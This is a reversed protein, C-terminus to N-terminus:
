PRPGPVAASRGACGRVTVPGCCARSSPTCGSAAVLVFSVVLSTAQAAAIAGRSILGSTYTITAVGAIAQSPNAGHGAAAFCLPVVVAIGLGMLAFGTMAVAPHGALVILLSGLAALVGGRLPGHAPASVTWWRTARSGPSRWPSRSGTTCAAALAASSGLEDELYVASWDLSAGEM